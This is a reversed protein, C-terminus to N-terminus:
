RVRISRLTLSGDALAALITELADLGIARGDVLVPAVPRFGDLEDGLGLAQLLRDAQGGAGDRVGGDGGGTGAGMRFWYVPSAVSETGGSTRVERLVQWAYTAGAELRLADAGAPYLATTAPTVAEWAAYGAMAEDPSAADDARVVRLRYQAAGAAGAGAGASWVFRPAPGAVVPPRAGFPVGPSLLELRVPNGIDVRTSGTGLEVGQPTRVTVEFLYSGAPLRGTRGMRDALEGAEAGLSYRVLSVDRGSSAFDRNTIRRAGPGLVFPDTSGSMVLASTPRERRVAVDLVVQQGGAAGNLLAIGILDPQAGSNQPAFDSVYISEVPYLLEVTVRVQAAGPAATLAAALAAIGSASAFGAASRIRAYM